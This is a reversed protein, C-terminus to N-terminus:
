RGKGGAPRGAARPASPARSATRAAGAGRAAAWSSAQWRACERNGCSKLCQQGERGEGGASKVGGHEAQRAVHRLLGLQRAHVVHRRRQPQLAGAVGDDTPARLRRRPRRAGLPMCPRGGAAAWPVSVPRRGAAGRNTEKRCAPEEAFPHRAPLALAAADAHLQQDVGRHEHQHAPSPPPPPTSTTPHKPAQKPPTCCPQRRAARPGQM